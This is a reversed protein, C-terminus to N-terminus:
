LITAEYCQGTTSQVSCVKADFNLVTGVGSHQQCRQHACATADLFFFIQMSKIQANLQHLLLEFAAVPLRAFTDDAQVCDLM